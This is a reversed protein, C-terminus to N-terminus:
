PGIFYLLHLFHLLINMSQFVTLKINFVLWDFLFIM